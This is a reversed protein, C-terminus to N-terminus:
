CKSSAVPANAVRKALAMLLSLARLLGESPAFGSFLTGVARTVSPLVVDATTAMYANQTGVIAGDPMHLLAAMNIPIPMIGARTLDIEHANSLPTATIPGLNNDSVSAHTLPFTKGLSIGAAHHTDTRAPPASVHKSPAAVKQRVTYNRQALAFPIALVGLLVLFYLASRILHAKITPNLQKKM